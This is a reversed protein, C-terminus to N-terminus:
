VRVESVAGLREANRELAPDLYSEVFEVVQEPARGVFERLNLTEDIEERSMGIAPDNALRDLLDNEEGEEKVRAGAAMAHARIVEHLKQRDGGRKVCAMLINETAMFPLESWLRKEIVKPYVKPAEMVNLYLNLIADCALFGEPLSIRRIASDDLTREFWQTATTFSAHLPSVMLHRSLACMRESRMPNRKYAMASSGVQKDEFPEEIEKLNQLLRMDTAFKHASEGIGALVTLVQTDVKRPYTQGTVPYSADFGLREAVLQDLRQVKEMDGDFLSVFSAQTGTTGKVGRCRLRQIAREIDEIDFLLDQAWLCARKGVTVVQAPQFHTYGLTPLDKWELAFARLRALVNVAKALVLGLGERLLILDTNDGVFCSTAGLHIIPAAKPAVLSYTHIHAMVDHRTESEFRRAADFDIDDIHARMEALQEDTIPLGLEQEAEALAIWCRRWTSFKNQPSWLAAMEKTAFREVLPTIYESTM